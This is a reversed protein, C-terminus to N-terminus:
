PGTVIRPAVPITTSFSSYQAYSPDIKGLADVFGVSSSSDGINDVTFAAGENYTDNTFHITIDLQAAPHHRSSSEENWYSASEEVRQKRSDLMSQSWHVVGCNITDCDDPSVKPHERDDLNRLQDDQIFIINHTYSGLAYEATDNISDAGYPVQDDSGNGIFARNPQRGDGLGVDDIEFGLVEANCLSHFLGLTITVSVVCVYAWPKM